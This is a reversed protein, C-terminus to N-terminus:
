FQTPDCGSMVLAAVSITYRPYKRQASDSLANAYMNQGPHVFTLCWHSNERHLNLSVALLVGVLRFRM